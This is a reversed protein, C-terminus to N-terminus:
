NIGSLAWLAHQTEKLGYTWQLWTVEQTTGQCHTRGRPQQIFTYSQAWGTTWGCGFELWVGFVLCVGSFWGFLWLVGKFDVSKMLHKLM